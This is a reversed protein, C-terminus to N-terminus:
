SRSEAVVPSRATRLSSKSKRDTQMHYEGEEFFSQKVGAGLVVTERINRRVPGPVHEAQPAAPKNQPHRTVGTRTRTPPTSTKNCISCSQSLPQTAILPDSKCLGRLNFACKDWRGERLGVPSMQTKSKRPSQGDYQTCKPKCTPAHMLPLTLRHKHPANFTVKRSEPVVWRPTMPHLYGMFCAVQSLPSTLDM